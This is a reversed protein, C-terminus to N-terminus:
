KLAEIGLWYDDERRSPNERVWEYYGQRWPALGWRKRM